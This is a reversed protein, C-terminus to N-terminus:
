VASKKEGLVVFWVPGAHRRMVDLRQLQKCLAFFGGFEGDTSDVVSDDLNLSVFAVLKKLSREDLANWCIRTRESLGAVLVAALKMNTNPNFAIQVGNSDVCDAITKAAATLCSHSVVTPNAVQAEFFKTIRKDDVWPQARQKRGFLKRVACAAMKRTVDFIARQKGISSSIKKGSPTDSNTNEVIQKPAVLKCMLLVKDVCFSDISLPLAVKKEGPLTTILAWSASCISINATQLERTSNIYAFM